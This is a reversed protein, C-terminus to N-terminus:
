GERERDFRAEAQGIREAEIEKDHQAIIATGSDLVVQELARYHTSFRPDLERHRGDKSVMWLHELEIEDGTPPDDYFGRVISVAAAYNMGDVSFRYIM